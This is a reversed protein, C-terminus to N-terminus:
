DLPIPWYELADMFEALDRTDEDILWEAVLHYQAVQSDCEQNLRECRRSFEVVVALVRPHSAPGAPWRRELRSAAAEGYVQRERQGLQQWWAEAETKAARLAEVYDEFLEDHGYM